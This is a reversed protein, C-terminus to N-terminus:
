NATAANLGILLRCAWGGHALELSSLLRYREPLADRSTM